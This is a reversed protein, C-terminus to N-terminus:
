DGLELTNLGANESYLRMMIRETVMVPIEDVAMDRGFVQTAIPSTTRRGVRSLCVRLGLLGHEERKHQKLDSAVPRTVPCLVTRDDQHRRALIHGIWALKLNQKCADCNEDGGCVITKDNWYHTWVGRFSVQLLTIRLPQKPRCRVIPYCHPDAHLPDNDFKM